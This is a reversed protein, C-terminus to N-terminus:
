VGGGENEGSLSPQPASAFWGSVRAPFRSKSAFVWDLLSISEAWIRATDESGSMWLVGASLFRFLIGAATIGTFCAAAFLSRYARLYMWPAQANELAYLLRRAPSMVASRGGLHVLRAQPVYLRQRRHAAMRACIEVDEYYMPITCDLGGYERIFGADLMIAAGTLCPVAVVQALDVSVLREKAIIPHEPFLKQLGFLRFFIGSLSPFERVSFMSDTGDPEVICPGAAAAPEHHELATALLDMADSELRTDPNLLFYFRGKAQQFALNNARPFGLNAGARILTAKPFEREVIGPTDDTSGNDVVLVEFARGSGHRFISELCERIYQGSNWCVIIVSVDM